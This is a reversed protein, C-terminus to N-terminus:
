PCTRAGPGPPRAPAGRSCPALHVPVGRLREALALDAELPQELRPDHPDHDGIIGADDGIRIVRIEAHDPVRALIEDGGLTAPRVHRRWLPAWGVDCRGLLQARGTDRPRPLFFEKALVAAADRDEDRHRGEAAGAVDRPYPCRARATSRTRCRAGSRLSWRPGDTASLWKNVDSLEDMTSRQARRRAPTVGTTCRSARRHSKSVGASRTAPLPRPRPPAWRDRAGATARLKSSSQGHAM